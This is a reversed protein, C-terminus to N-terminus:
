GKLSQWGAFSKGDFLMQREGAEHMVLASREVADGRHSRTLAFTAGGAAALALLGAAIWWRRKTTGARSARGARPARGLLADIRDLLEGYTRLRRGRDPELMARLLWTSAPALHPPLEPVAARARSAMIEFATEGAFPPRGALLHYATAGLGYIDA